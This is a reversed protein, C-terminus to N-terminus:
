STSISKWYRRDPEGELYEIVESKDAGVTAAIEDFELDTNVYLEVCLKKQEESLMAKIISISPVSLLWYHLSSAYVLYYFRPMVGCQWLFSVLPGGWVVCRFGNYTFSLGWWNKQRTFQTDIIYYNVILLWTLFVGAAVAPTFTRSEHSYVGCFSYIDPSQKRSSAWVRWSVSKCDLYQSVGSRLERLSLVWVSHSKLEWNKWTSEVWNM